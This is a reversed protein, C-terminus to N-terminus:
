VSEREPNSSTPSRGASAATHRDQVLSRFALLVVSLALLGIGILTEKLGGYGALQPNTVGVLLMVLNVILLGASMQIWIRSLKIPRPWDPRDKRLLLFGAHALVIALIYGLNSALLIGVPSSVYMVITVNIICDVILAVAPVGRRNLYGLQRITMDDKALGFLARSADATSSVMLLFFAAVIVVAAIDGGGGFLQNFAPIAYGVPNKAIAAEGVYGTVGLPVLFFFGLAVVASVKLARSTDKVTDKFEPAFSACLETGYSM